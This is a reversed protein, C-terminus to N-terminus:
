INGLYKEYILGWKNINVDKTNNTLVIDLAQDRTLQM